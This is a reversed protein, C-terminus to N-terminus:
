EISLFQGCSFVGQHGFSGGVALQTLGVRLCRHYDAVVENNFFIISANAWGKGGAM